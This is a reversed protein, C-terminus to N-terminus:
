LRAPRECSLTQAAFAATQGAQPATSAAFLGQDSIKIKCCPGYRALSRGVQGRSCCREGGQKPPPMAKRALWSATAAAVVSAL